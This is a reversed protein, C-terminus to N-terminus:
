SASAKVVLGGHRDWLQVNHVKHTFKVADSKQRGHHQLARPNDKVTNHIRVALLYIVVSDSYTVCHINGRRVMGM